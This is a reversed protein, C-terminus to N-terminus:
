CFAPVSFRTLFNALTGEVGRRLSGRVSPCRPKEGREDFQPYQTLSAEGRELVVLAISHLLQERRCGQDQRQLSSASSRKRRLAGTALGQERM